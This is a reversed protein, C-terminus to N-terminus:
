ITNHFMPRYFNCCSPFHLKKPPNASQGMRITAVGYPTPKHQQTCHIKDQTQTAATLDHRQLGESRKQLNCLLQVSHLTQAVPSNAQELPAM